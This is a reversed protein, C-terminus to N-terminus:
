DQPTTVCKLLGHEALEEPEHRQGAGGGYACRMVERGGWMAVLTRRRDEPEAYFWFRDDVSVFGDRDAEEWRVDRPEGNDLVTVDEIRAPRGEGGARHVRFVEMAHGPPAEEARFDSDYHYVDFSWPGDTAPAPDPAAPEAGSCGSLLATALLALSWHRVRM